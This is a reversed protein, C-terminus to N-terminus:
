IRGRNSADHVLAHEPAHGRIVEVFESAIASHETFGTISNFVEQLSGEHKQASLAEFSGDAMIVGDNLVIIRDSIREVVEMIHSSYFITKGRRALEQLIEKFVMVSNADLGTIPEDFFLIDPDHMLAAIIMLKQKMGKSYSSIRNHYADGIGLLGFMARGKERVVEATLGYLEGIFSLYESGTLSDYLVAAEPVYGIRRKYDISNERIDEGFIRVTGTYGEVMGLLIKITTSKGAGNPGIYGIIQGPEVNLNVGKLVSDSKGQYKMKLDIMEIVTEM